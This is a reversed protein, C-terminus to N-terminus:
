ACNRLRDLASQLIITAAVQDIVQGRRRRSTDAAILLREAEVTTLREDWQLIPRSFHTALNSCFARVSQVRPGSSGDLNFPMGVVFGICTHQEVLDGLAVMDDKFKKRRITTLPSAVLRTVDSLAVGYTKSGPDLGFLAGTPALEAAFLEPDVFQAESQSAM